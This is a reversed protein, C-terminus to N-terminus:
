VQFDNYFETVLMSRTRDKADTSEAFPPSDSAGSVGNRDVSELGLSTTFSPPDNQSKIASPLSAKM